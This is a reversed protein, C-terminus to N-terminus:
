DLFREVDSSGYNSLVCVVPIFKLDFRSMLENIDQETVATLAPKLIDGTRPCIVNESLIRKM